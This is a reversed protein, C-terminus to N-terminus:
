ESEREVPRAIARPTGDENHATASFTIPGSGLETKPVSIEGSPSEITGISRGSAYFEIRGAGPSDAELTFFDEANRVRLSATHGHNNISIPIVARGQSEVASAEIAVVRLEHYGDCLATTDFEFGQDPPCTGVRLGDLFLEYRLITGGGPVTGQPKLHATGVLPSESNLGEVTVTPISAWPQCLPDGVLLLQYPGAVSQYFAEAATAGRAYHVHLTPLPFKAQTAFPETVTGSSAAAGHRLFESLPTQSHNKLFIGGFSTLHECIAGPLIRSETAKWDFRSTGLMAGAVAIKRRPLIGEIVKAEVGLKQLEGVALPFAWDRTTSRVNRNKMFYVTGNPKTGDASAASRLYRLVEARTNGRGATVGLMMSLLYRGGRKQNRIAGRRWSDGASFAQTRVTRTEVDIPQYYFNNDTRFLLGPKQEFPVNWFRWLYTAGTISATPALQLPLHKRLPLSEISWPFDSSYVLYDIQAKLGRQELTLFVPDLIETRLTDFSVRHRSKQWDLYIVNSPPINRLRCYHNAISVSDPSAQNVVLAVNEPGGGALSIHALTAFYVLTTVRFARLM